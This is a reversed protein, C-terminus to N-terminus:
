LPPKLRGSPATDRTWSPHRPSPLHLYPALALAGPYPPPSRMREEAAREEAGAGSRDLRERRQVHSGGPATAAAQLQQQAVSRVGRQAVLHSGPARLPLSSGSPALFPPSYPPSLAEPAGQQGLRRLVSEPRQVQCLLLPVLIARVDKPFELSPGLCRGPGPCPALLQLRLRLRATPPARTDEPPKIELRAKRTGRQHGSDPETDCATHRTLQRSGIRERRGAVGAEEKQGVWGGDRARARKVGGRQGEREDGVEPGSGWPSPSSALGEPGGLTDSPEVASPLLSPLSLPRSALGLSGRWRAWGSIASLSLLRSCEGRGGPCHSQLESAEKTVAVSPEPVSSGAGCVEEQALDDGWVSCLIRGGTQGEWPIGLGGPVGCSACRAATVSLSASSFVQRCARVRVEGSAEAEGVDRGLGGRFGRGPSGSTWTRFSSANDRSLSVAARQSVSSSALEVPPLSGTGEQRHGGTGALVCRSVGCPSRASPLPRPGMVGKM